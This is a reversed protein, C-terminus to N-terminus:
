TIATSVCYTFVSPARRMRCSPTQRKPKIRMADLTETAQMKPPATPDTKPHGANSLRGIADAVATHVTLLSRSSARSSRM